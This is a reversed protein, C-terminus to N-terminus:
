SHTVWSRVSEPMQGHCFTLAHGCERAPLVEVYNDSRRGAGQDSQLEHDYGENGVPRQYGTLRLGPSANAVGVM